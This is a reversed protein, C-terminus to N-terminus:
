SRASKTREGSQSVDDCVNSGSRESEGIACRTCENARRRVRRDCKTEPGRRETQEQREDDHACLLLDSGQLQLQLLLLLRGCSGCGRVSSRERVGEGASGACRQASRQDLSERGRLRPRVNVETQAEGAGGGIVEAVVTRAASHARIAAYGPRCCRRLVLHGPAALSLQRWGRM